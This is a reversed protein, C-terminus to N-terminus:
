EIKLASKKELAYQEPISFFNMIEYAWMFEDNQLPMGGQYETQKSCKNLLGNM